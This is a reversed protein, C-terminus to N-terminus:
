TPVEGADIIAKACACVAVDITKGSGTRETADPTCTAKYVVRIQPLDADEPVEDAEITIAMPLTSPAENITVDITLAM